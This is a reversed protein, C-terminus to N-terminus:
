NERARGHMVDIIDPKPIYISRKSLSLYKCIMTIRHQDAKVLDKKYRYRNLLDLVPFLSLANARKDYWGSRFYINQLEPTEVKIKGILYDRVLGLAHTHKEFTIANYNVQGNELEKRIYLFSISHEIVIWKKTVIDKGYFVGDKFMTQIFM